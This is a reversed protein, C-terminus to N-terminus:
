AEGKMAADISERDHLSHGFRFVTDKLLWDMRAKDKRLEAVEARLSQNEARLKSKLERETEVNKFHRQKEDSLFGRAEERERTAAQLETELQRFGELTKFAEINAPAIGCKKAANMLEAWLEDTRPTSM